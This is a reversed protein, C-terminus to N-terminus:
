PTVIKGNFGPPTIISCPREEDSIPDVLEDNCFVPGAPGHERLIPIVLEAAVIERAESAKCQRQMMIIRILKRLSYVFRDAGHISVSAGLLAGDWESSLKAAQTEESINESMDNHIRNNLPPEVYLRRQMAFPKQQM